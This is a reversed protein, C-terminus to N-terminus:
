KKLSFRIRTSLRGEFRGSLFIRGADYRIKWGPQAEPIVDVLQLRDAPYTIDLSLNLPYYGDFFRRMFPGNIMEYIRQRGQGSGARFILSEAQLCIVSWKLLKDLHIM